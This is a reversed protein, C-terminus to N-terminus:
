SSSRRLHQLVECIIWVQTWCTVWSKTRVTIDNQLQLFLEVCNITLIFYLLESEFMRPFTAFHEMLNVVLHSSKAYTQLQGRVELNQQPSLCELFRIRKSWFSPRSNKLVVAMFNERGTRNMNEFSNTLM